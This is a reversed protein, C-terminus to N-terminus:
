FSDIMKLVNFFKELIFNKGELTNDVTLVTFYSCKFLIQQLFLVFPDLLLLM